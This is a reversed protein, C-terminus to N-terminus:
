GFERCIRVSGMQRQWVTLRSGLLDFLTSGPNSPNSRLHSVPDFRFLGFSVLPRSGRRMHDVHLSFRGLLGPFMGPQSLPDHLVTWSPFALPRPRPLKSHCTPSLFVRRNKDLADTHLHFSLLHQLIPFLFLYTTFNSVIVLFTGGHM